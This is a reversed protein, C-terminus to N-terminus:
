RYQIIGPPGSDFNEPRLFQEGSFILHNIRSYAPFDPFFGLRIQFTKFVLNDNRIRAGIGISSLSNGNTLVQNSGSLFSFDTFWFFAFRFGYFNVPNFFVSELSVSLRQNGMVSDNRFGSFGNENIFMLHEDTYRDFGRTYDFTVFNRITNNGLTVLNSIYKLRFLVLGQETYSNRIFAAIGASSYFYGLTKVSQGVSLETGIYTRQKFENFERGGTIKILGGYPIDETRGYGYILSSKYYKQVSFALSGMFSRYRQLNHYSDPQIIPREFINNNTYRLGAIVRSVSERNILFSRSLWYDQFNYKLPVPVVMTDLDETTYMQQVSIGGAYKTTSSILSRAVNIGYTKQGLADRYFVNLNAFSSYLNNIKYFVGFGPSPSLQKNYLVEAGLEHGTGFINKEFVSIDGENVGNFKFDSGLSYVDQTIVIIDAEDDSVPVVIIRADNIYSLQRLIRENDSLVLPSITDGENFLLNKRISNEATNFHTKNLLKELRDPKNDSPNSINSGFVNLRRITINRIRVGSFAKYSQDSSGTLRKNEVTDPSVIVFDYIKKSLTGKSIKSKLSDIFILYRNEITGPNLVKGPISLVTDRAFYLISDNSRLINGASVKIITDPEQIKQSFTNSYLFLSALCCLLTKTFGYKLERSCM